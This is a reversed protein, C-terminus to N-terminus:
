IKRVENKLKPVIYDSYHEIQSTYLTFINQM